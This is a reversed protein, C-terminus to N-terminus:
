PAPAREPETVPNPAAQAAAAQDSAPQAPRRHRRFASPNRSMAARTRRGTCSRFMQAYQARYAATFGQYTEQRYDPDAKAREQMKGCGYEYVGRGLQDCVIVDALRRYPNGETYKDIEHRHFAMWLDGNLFVPARAPIHDDLCDLLAREEPKFRDAILQHSFISRVRATMSYDRVGKLFLSQAALAAFAIGALQIGPRRIAKRERLIISFLVIAIGTGWIFAFRPPWFVNQMDEHPTRTYALSALTLTLISPLMAFLAVGADFVRAGYLFIILVCAFLLVVLQGYMVLISRLTEASTLLKFDLVGSLRDAGAPDWLRQVILEGVFVAFWFSAIKFLGLLKPKTFLPAPHNRVLEFGLEIMCAIVPGNEHVFVLLLASVIKQLRKGRLLSTAWFIALPFALPEPHWGYVPNDFMWFGAPGLIFVFVVILLQWRKTEDQQEDALRLVSSIALFYILITPFILGYTGFLATLPGLVLELFTNHYPKPGHINDYLLPYGFLYSRSKQVHIIMDSTYSYGQILLIKLILWFGLVGAAAIHAALMWRSLTSGRAAPGKM